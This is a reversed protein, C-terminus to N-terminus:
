HFSRFPNKRPVKPYGGYRESNDVEDGNAKVVAQCTEFNHRCAGGIITVEEGVQIDEFPALLELTHIGGAKADTVIFRRDGNSRKVQGAIYYGEDQTDVVEVLNGDISVVAVGSTSFEVESM